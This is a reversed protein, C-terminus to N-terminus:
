NKNGRRISQAEAWMDASEERLRAWFRILGRGIVSTAVAVQVALRDAMAEARQVTSAATQEGSTAAPAAQGASAAPQGNAPPTQAPAATEGAAAGSNTQSM